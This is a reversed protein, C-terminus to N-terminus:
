EMEVKDSLGRLAKTNGDSKVGEMKVFDEMISNIIVNKRGFRETLIKKANEYNEATVALGGIARAAEGNILSKLYAFKSVEAINSADISTSFQDFFTPFEKPDGSFCKIELKPLKVCNKGNAGGKSAVDKSGMKLKGKMKNIAVELDFNRDDAQEIEAAVEETALVGLLQEDLTKIKSLKETMKELITELIENDMDVGKEMEIKAHSVLKTASARHGGRSGVIQEKSAM